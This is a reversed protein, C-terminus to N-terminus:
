PGFAFAYVTNDAAVYLRRQTALITQFHHLGTMTTGAGSFVVQGTLANFGHL